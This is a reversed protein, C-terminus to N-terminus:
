SSLVLIFRSLYPTLILFVKIRTLIRVMLTPLIKKKFPPACQRHTFHGPKKKVIRTSSM